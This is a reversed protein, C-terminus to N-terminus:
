KKLKVKVKISQKSDSSAPSVDNNKKTMEADVLEQYMKMLSAVTEEETYWHKKGHEDTHYFGYAEMVAKDNTQHAKRLELPMTVEDYLDALSSNPYLERAELVKQATAEIRDRQEATPEPWIFNNYVITNSYRYDSKLRGAVVRMWAMHVNSTLVGFHYLSANEVIYILDAVVTDCGMFDMPIYRRRESSVKPIAIYDSSPQQNEDFLMPTEAKKRTAAKKSKERFARVADIRKVISPCQRLESPDANELWLCYRPQRNIFDKGSMYKRIYKQSLPEKKVLAEMEEKILILNGDDTPQSGRHMAAVSSIPRARKEIFVNPAEALYANINDPTSINDGNFLLRKSNNKLLSFGIIVCHVHAKLSAESDWRFTRYAFDIHLPSNEFLPKWVSAVQEGQTISNTSVFASKIQTNKMFQIAKIYWGAVYDINKSQPYLERLDEKQEPTQYAYGVFPPNGMIYSLNTKDVVSSWDMQLANGEVIFANTKLPFFTIQSHIIEETEELMQAEAIWLATRAVTVAFDNIEIGYFQNISVRIPNEEFVDGFVQQGGFREAIAQNELRRLSLFTETLFNGSGCAPDLFKLSALKEQFKILRNKYGRQEATSQIARFEEELNTLFLPDIVKHINEISTYHMGGARRTEPNLTSEFVAGFITPSIESWNFACADETLTKKLEDDFLPIEIDEEAFLGGNVYPFAKLAAPINSKKARTEEPTDLIRFLRELAESLDDSDKSSIYNQFLNHNDGFLGADEAYMCFVLRTVLINLYRQSELDDPDVYKERLADYLRGVIEGAEISIDLERKIEEDKQSVFFRFLGIEKPLNALEVIIPAEGPKKLDHIEFQQFNCAIVWRVNTGYPLYGAYRRGQEFPTLMDGGSQQYRKNLPKNASKQEILIEQNKYLIDIYKQHGNIDVPYEPDIVNLPHDIGLVSEMYEVWFKTTDQKEDGKDKWRKVFDKAATKQEALTM